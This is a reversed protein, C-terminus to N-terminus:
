SARGKMIADFRQRQDAEAAARAEDRRDMFRLAEETIQHNRRRYAQRTRYGLCRRQLADFMPPLLAMGAGFVFAVLMVGVSVMLLRVWPPQISAVQFFVIIMDRIEAM